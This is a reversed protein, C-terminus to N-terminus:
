EAFEKSGRIMACFHLRNCLVAIRSEPQAQVEEQLRAIMREKMNLRPIRAVVEGIRERQLSQLGLGAVDAGSGARVMQAEKGHRDAVLVNLHLTIADATLHARRESWGHRAALEIAKQAGVRTFCQGRSDMGLGLDHLLLATFLAEDDFPRGDRDLLRAWFYSRMCHNFLFPECIQRSLEIAERTIASDPPLIDDVAPLRIRRMSPQQLRAMARARVAQALLALREYWALRGGTREIWSRTGLAM